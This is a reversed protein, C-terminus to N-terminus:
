NEEDFHKEKQAENRSHKKIEMKVCELIQVAEKVTIGEIFKSGVFSEDTNSRM